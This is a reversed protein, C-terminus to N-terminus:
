TIYNDFEPEDFNKVSIHRDGKEIEHIMRVILDNVPVSVGVRGGNKVIYGNLYDIETLKGRELSQLSSSKLRKYKHGIIRIILHRRFEPLIGKGNLFKRFDLSGGFVEVRIRMADAVEMAERMIVIFMKRVRSISLMEGLYLGCVAGLSTICSNIILKSYLHGNINDTTRVPVVASLTDALVKLFTDSDSNIYGIIFNGKSTMELEGEGHMTAGWGTVCGIIRDPGLIEALADECFGNQLSVLCGDEKLIAKVSLAADTMDTAKTALLVVDKKDKVASVSSYAPMIVNHEGALGSIHIGTTSIMYAYAENHCVIEVDAGSKKLLAATIGGIAGAGVVLFSLNSENM